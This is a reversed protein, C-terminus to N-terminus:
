GPVGHVPTYIHLSLYNGTDSRTRCPLSLTWHLRRELWVTRPNCALLFGDQDPVQIRTPKKGKCASFTGQMFSRGKDRLCIIVGLNCIHMTPSCFTHPQLVCTGLVPDKGQGNLKWPCLGAPDSVIVRSWYMNTRRDHDQRKPVVCNKYLPKMHRNNLWGRVSTAMQSTLLGCEESLFKKDTVTGQVPGM